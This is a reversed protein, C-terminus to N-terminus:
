FGGSDEDSSPGYQSRILSLKKETEYNRADNMRRMKNIQMLTLRTQRLKSKDIQTNDEAPDSFGIQFKDFLDENLKEKKNIIDHLNM